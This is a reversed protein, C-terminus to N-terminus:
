PEPAAASTMVPAPAVCAAACQGQVGACDDNDARAECFYRAEACGRMCQDAASGASIWLTVPSIAPAVPPPSPAAPAPRRPPQVVTIRQAAGAGTAAFAALALALLALRRM